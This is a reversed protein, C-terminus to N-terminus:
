DMKRWVAQYQRSRDPNEFVQSQVLTFGENRFQDITRAFADKSQAIRYRWQFNTNKPTKEYVIRYEQRNQSWRGEVAVIWHGRDWFSVEQGQNLAHIHRNLEIPTMWDTFQDSSVGPNVLPLGDQSVPRAKVVTPAPESGNPVPRPVTAGPAIDIAPDIVPISRLDTDFDINLDIKPPSMIGSKGPNKQDTSPTAVLIEEQTKKATPRTKTVIWFSFLVVIGMTAPLLVTHRGEAHRYSETFNFINYKPSM